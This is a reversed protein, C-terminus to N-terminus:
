SLGQTLKLQVQMCLADKPSPFKCNNCNVKLNKRHDYHLHTIPKIKNIGPICPISSMHAIHNM